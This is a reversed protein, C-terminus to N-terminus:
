FFLLLLIKCKYNGPSPHLAFKPFDSPGPNETNEKGENQGWSRGSSQEM